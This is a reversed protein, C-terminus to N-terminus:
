TPGSDNGHTPGHRSKRFAEADGYDAVAACRKHAGILRLVEEEFLVEGKELGFRLGANRKAIEAELEAELEAIKAMLAAIAADM